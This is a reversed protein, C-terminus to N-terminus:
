SRLASRVELCPPLVGTFELGPCCRDWIWRRYAKTGEIQGETVEKGEVVGELETRALERGELDNVGKIIANSYCPEGPVGKFDFSLFASAISM